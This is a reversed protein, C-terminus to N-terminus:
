LLNHMCTLPKESNFNHVPLPPASQPERSRSLAQKAHSPVEPVLIWYGRLRLAPDRGYDLLKGQKTLGSCSFLRFPADQDM